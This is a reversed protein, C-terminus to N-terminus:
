RVKGRDRGTGAIKEALRELEGNGIGDIGSTDDPGGGELTKKILWEMDLKEGARRTQLKM